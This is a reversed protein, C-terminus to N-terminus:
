ILTTTVPFGCSALKWIFFKLRGHLDSKWLFQWWDLNVSAEKNLFRFVSSVKFTGTLTGLWILRDEEDVNTWFFKLINKVTDGDFLSNLLPLSWEGNPLLLSEVM